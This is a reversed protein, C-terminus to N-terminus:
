SSRLRCGVTFFSDEKTKTHDSKKTKNKKARSILNFYCNKETDNGGSNSAPRLSIYAKYIHNSKLKVLQFLPTLPLHNIPTPLLLM